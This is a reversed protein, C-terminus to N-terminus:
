AVNGASGRLPKLRNILGILEQMDVPKVVHAAFGAATTRQRDAPQGYGTVAVLTPPAAGNAAAQVQRAVEFRDMLPLGLDLLVVDPHFTAVLALAAPGDFAVATQCGVADLAAATMRAADVNDDVVLVRQAPANVVDSALVHSSLPEPGHLVDSLSPLTIIFESGTGPGDSHAEITGDHLMVLSRAITLGLGLGGQARDLAQRDQAFM